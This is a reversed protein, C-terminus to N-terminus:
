KNTTNNTLNFVKWEDVWTTYYGTVQDGKFPNHVPYKIFYRYNSKRFWYKIEHINLIEGHLIQDNFWVFQVTDGIKHKM